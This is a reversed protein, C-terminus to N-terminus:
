GRARMATRAQAFGFAADVTEALQREDDGCERESLHLAVDVEHRICRPPLRNLAVGAVDALLGPDHALGPDGVAQRLVTDLMAHEKQNRMSTLDASISSHTVAIM